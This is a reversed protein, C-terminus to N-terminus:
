YGAVKVFGNSDRWLCGIPLGSSSDPLHWIMFRDAQFFALSVHGLSSIKDADGSFICMDSGRGNGIITHRYKSLLGNYGKKNIYISGYDDGNVSNEWIENGQIKLSGQHLNVINDITTSGTFDVGATEATFIIDAGSSTVEVGGTLYAAAYMIVFGAATDTLSSGAWTANKSVADCVITAMGSTGTLTITDIRKVAAVNSDINVITGDLDGGTNVVDVPVTFDTGAVAAQFFLDAGSYTLIIGVGTFLTNYFNYYDQATQSLSSNFEVSGGQNNCTIDVSGSTGTLTVKVRRAVAVV